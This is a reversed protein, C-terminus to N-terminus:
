KPWAVTGVAHTHGVGLAVCSFTKDDGLRWIRLSNDKLLSPLMFLSFVCTYIHACM